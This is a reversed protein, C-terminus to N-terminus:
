RRENKLIIFAILASIFSVFLLHVIYLPYDNIKGDTLSSRYVNNAEIRKRIIPMVRYLESVYVREGTIKSNSLAKKIIEKTLIQGNNCIRLMADKKVICCGFDDLKYVKITNESIQKIDLRVDIGSFQLFLIDTVTPFLQNTLKGRVDASIVLFYDPYNDSYDFINYVKRRPNYIEDIEPDVLGLIITDIIAMKSLFNM